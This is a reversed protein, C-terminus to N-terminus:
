IASRDNGYHTQPHTPHQPPLARNVNTGREKRKYPVERLLNTIQGGVISSEGVDSYVLLTLSPAGQLKDYAMNLNTFRWSFAPSLKLYKGDVMFFVIENSISDRFTYLIDDTVKGGITMPVLNSGLFYTSGRALLFGMKLALDTRLFLIPQVPSDENIWLNTNDWVLDITDIKKETYIKPFLPKKNQPNVLFDISRNLQASVQAQMVNFVSIVTLWLESTKKTLKSRPMSPELFVTYTYSLEHCELEAKSFKESDPIDLDGYGLRDVINETTDPLTASSLAVKWHAGRFELRKPLRVKFHWAQNDPFEDLM